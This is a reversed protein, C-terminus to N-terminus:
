YSEGAFISSFNDPLPERAQIWPTPVGKQRASLAVIGGVIACNTDMDGLGSITAWFAEQYDELHHAACWLAFPVTDQASIKYGSGLQQAVVPPSRDSPIDIAQRIGSRTESEPINEVVYQLFQEGSMLEGEGVRYAIAAAVAVAIAGTIGEPHAHTPQASLIANERVAELNDAFYAGLPAVRMAAGNGYSGTGGFMESAATRWDAGWQLRTLLQQAGAGYGRSPNFREAFAAALADPDIRGYRWLTEVISLAMETDDSYRWRRPPVQRQQIRENLEEGLGFFRDGLADGVSLGTLSLQMRELPKM